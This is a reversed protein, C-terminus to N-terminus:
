SKKGKRVMRDKSHREETVADEEYIDARKWSLSGGKGLERIEL